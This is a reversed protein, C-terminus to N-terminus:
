LRAVKKKRGTAISNLNLFNISHFQPPPFSQIVEKAMLVKQLIPLSYAGTKGSGTRARALVDKGQLALPIAAAQVLSPTKWGIKQIAKTLRPDLGMDEFSQDETLLHSECQAGSMTLRGISSSSLFLSTKKKIELLFSPATAKHIFEACFYSYKHYNQEVTRRFQRCFPFDSYIRLFALITKYSTIFYFFILFTSNTIVGPPAFFVYQKVVISVALLVLQPGWEDSDDRDQLTSGGEPHIFNLHM